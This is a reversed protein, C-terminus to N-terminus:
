RPLMEMFYEELKKRQAGSIEVSANRSYDYSVQTSQGTAFIITSDRQDVIRYSLDFSKGGIKSVWMELCIKSDLTIPKLYRCSVSGLIFSFPDKDGFGYFFTKRGEEFYTFFVANNVHNMADLDRFRVAIELNLMKKENM